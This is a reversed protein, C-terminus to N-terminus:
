NGAPLRDFSEVVVVDFPVKERVLQLGLQQQLANFLDPAVPPQSAADPTGSKFEKTYEFIFDYKGTLGTRDVVPQDAAFHIWDVFSSMAEQQARMRVLEYNGNMTHNATVGPRNPPLTPFRGDSSAPAGEKLRTGTKAVTLAYANFERSEMHTKLHFREALLNQLMVRFEPRTAGPPIKVALDFKDRDLASKSSIQFYDVHYAIGILDLLSAEGFTYREPDKSGPGGDSGRRSGPGSPKLSAVEFTTPVQALAAAALLLPICTM